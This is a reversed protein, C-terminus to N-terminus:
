FCERRELCCTTSINSKGVCLFSRGLFPTILKEVEEELRANDKRLQALEPDTPNGRGPFAKAADNELQRKWVYFCIPIFGLEQSVQTVSSTEALRLAEAKFEKSYTKRQRM